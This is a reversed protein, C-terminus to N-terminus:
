TLHQSLIPADSPLRKPQLRFLLGPPTPLHRSASGLETHPLSSNRLWPLNGLQFSLGDLLHHVSPLFSPQVQGPKSPFLDPSILRLSLAMASPGPNLLPVGVRAKIDNLAGHQQGQRAGQM